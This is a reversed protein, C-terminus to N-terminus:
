CQWLIKAKVKHCTCKFVYACGGGGFNMETKWDPGQELQAVFKMPEGCSECEPTEDAQIWSPAGGIQGLVERPSAGNRSAWSSRSTDYDDGDEEVVVSGYRTPRTTEGDVPPQVLRLEEDPVVLVANGGGNPEWDDCMGPDNACMFLLLLAQHEPASLQGLFQMNGKCCKCAPWELMGNPASPKGGFISEPSANESADAVHILLKSM